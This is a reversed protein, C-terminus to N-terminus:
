VEVEVVVQGSCVYLFLTLSAKGVFASNQDTQDEGRDIEVDGFRTAQGLPVAKLPRPCVHCVTLLGVGESQLYVFVFIALKLEQERIYKECDTNRLCCELLNYLLGAAKTLMLTDVGGFSSVNTTWRSRIPKWEGKKL